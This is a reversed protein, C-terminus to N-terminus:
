QETVRDAIENGLQVRTASDVSAELLHEFFGQLHSRYESAIWQELQDASLLARDPISLSPYRGLVEQGTIYSRFLDTLDTRTALDTLGTTAILERVVAARQDETVESWEEGFQQNLRDHYLAVRQDDDGIRGAVARDMVGGLNIRTDFVHDRETESLFTRGGTLDLKLDKNNLLHLGTGGVNDFRATVSLELPQTMDSVAPHFQLNTIDLDSGAGTPMTIGTVDVKNGRYVIQYSDPRSGAPLPQGQADCLQYSDPRHTGDMLHSQINVTEPTASGPVVAVDPITGM